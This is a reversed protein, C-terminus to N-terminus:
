LHEDADEESNIIVEIDDPVHILEAHIFSPLVVVKDKMQALIMDRLTESMSASLMMNPKVILVDKM